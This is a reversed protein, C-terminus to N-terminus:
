FKKMTPMLNIGMGFIIYLLEFEDLIRITRMPDVKFMKTLEERVRESSVGAVTLSLERMAIQTEIEIQFGKTVAFRMARLIRLADEEFREHPDGVARILRNTIDAQGGFPDIITGDDAKAIANMSFDRRRLDDLLTGPEVKDPRRGDTYEGEKRALVFDGTIGRNPHGKPFRARITLFQPSEVFIEFGLALLNYRMTAFPNYGHRLDREDLVVTYDLDKSKTGLIEDRIAGGVLYLEM